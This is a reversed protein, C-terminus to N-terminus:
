TMDRVPHARLFRSLLVVGVVGVAAGAALLSGGPGAKIIITVAAASVLVAGYGWLRKFGSTAALVFAGIALLIAPLGAVVNRDGSVGDGRVVALAAAGGVLLAVALLWFLLRLQKHEWKLRPPTWRVYGIRPEVIRRRIPPLAWAVAAAFVGGLGAVPELWLWTMGVVAIGLGVFLDLLGDSFSDQYAEGELDELNTRNM